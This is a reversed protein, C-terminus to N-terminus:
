RVRYIEVDDQQFVVDALQNFKALSEAPYASRELSGVYIYRVNYKQLLTRAQEQDITSYLTGVDAQRPGLADLVAQDGGRWQREHGVWGLVTPLGTSSSVGGYGEASYSGGTAPVMELIVSGPEANDRLWAISARGAPSQERPTKGELGVQTRRTTMTHLNIGAYVLSGALLGGSVVVVVIVTARVVVHRMDRWRTLLWWVGWASVVGWMLWVQYYFKFITNMRSNFVDRIFVVDTGFCIACGLTIVLLVFAEAPAQYVRLLAQGIALLALGVLALLPFGMFSGVILLIPTGLFMLWNQQNDTIQIGPALYVFTTLPVVFLGFIILFEHLGTRSGNLPAIIETLKSLIPITTLPETNAGAFSTFTLYFPIYLFFMALVLLVVQQGLRLWFRKDDNSLRVFLLFLAGVYLLTYTPIDWSNTAYLSGLILGALILDLWGERNTAFAPLSSRTIVSLALAMALLGIPLAIVHPHMDGLWFSFFPFETINYVQITEHDTGLQEEPQEDWLARSPWWWNFNEIRDTRQVTTFTGFDGERTHVPSPLAIEKVEQQSLDQISERLAVILQNSNFAVVRHDGIVVQLLGTQNASGLVLVIGLLMALTRSVFASAGDTRHSSNSTYSARALAVLNSIIGAVNLATLGFILALSLNFAVSPALGSLQAVLAMMLYGFYYYNISYGALWPDQPPFSPSKQIANFFAYDMPRETGWPDPNYSRIWALGILAVLFIAEYLLVTHWHHKLYARSHAIGQTIRTAIRGAPKNSADSETDRGIGISAIGVAGVILLTLIIWPLQFSGLGIMALMWTGYGTLLLGLSKSFAYGRDPLTRFLITTLPLSVLGICQIVLWWIIIDQTM